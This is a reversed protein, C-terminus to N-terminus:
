RAGADGSYDGSSRMVIEKYTAPKSLDEPPLFDKLFYIFDEPVKATKLLKKFAEKATESETDYYNFDDNTFELWDEGEGAAKPPQYPGHEADIEKNRLENEADEAAEAAARRAIEDEIAATQEPTEHFEDHNSNHLPFELDLDRMIDDFDEAVNSRNGMSRRLLSKLESEKISDDEFDIDGKAEGRALIQDLEYRLRYVNEDSLGSSMSSYTKESSEDNISAATKNDTPPIFKELYNLYAWIQFVLWVKRKAKNSYTEFIPVVQDHMKELEAFAKKYNHTTIKEYNNDPRMGRAANFLSSKNLLPRKPRGAEFFIPKNKNISEM